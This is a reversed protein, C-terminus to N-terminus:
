RSASRRRLSGLGRKVALAARFARRDTLWEVRREAETARRAVKAREAEVQGLRADLSRQEAELERTRALLRRNGAALVFSRAEAQWQLRVLRALETHPTGAPEARPAAASLLGAIAEGHRRANHHRVALDRNRMGMGPDYAALDEILREASPLADTAQGAFNDAEVAPYSEPTIWGDCGFQDYVYVARGCSMGELAARGKAVVIDADAIAEEPELTADGHSGAVECRVGASEWAEVLLDRRHGQLYNGLLVAREPRARLAEGGSFRSTDVPQTLRVVDAAVALARLRQAVRESLAVTTAVLGPLQPPLQLDFLESPCRFVQPAEPYAEALRHAMIGDQVLVADCTSPLESPTRAVRVGRDSALDALPGEREATHLVVDHGLRELQEAVLLVYGQSGGMRLDHTAAVVNL